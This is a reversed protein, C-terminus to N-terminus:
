KQPIAAIEALASVFDQKPIKKLMAQNFPNQLYQQQEITLQQYQKDPYILGVIGDDDFPIFDLLQKYKPSLHQKEWEKLPFSSILPALNKAVEIAKDKNTWVCLTDLRTAGPPAAKVLWKGSLDSKKIWVYGFRDSLHDSLCILCSGDEIVQYNIDPNEQALDFVVKSLASMRRQSTSFVTPQGKTSRVLSTCDSLQKKISKYANTDEIKGYQGLAKRRKAEGM